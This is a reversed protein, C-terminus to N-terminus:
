ESPLKLLSPDPEDFDPSPHPYRSWQVLDRTRVGLKAKQLPMFQDRRFRQESYSESIRGESRLHQATVDPTLLCKLDVDVTGEPLPFPRTDRTESLPLALGMDVLEEAYDADVEVVDGTAVHGGVHDLHKKNSFSARAQVTTMDDQGSGFLEEGNQLTEWRERWRKGRPTDARIATLRAFFELHENLKLEEDWPVAELLSRRAMFFNPLLDVEHYLLTGVSTDARRPRGEPPRVKIEAGNPILRGTFWVDRNLKGGLSWEAGVMGCGEVEQLLEYFVRLDTNSTCVYDDDWLMVCPETSAQVLLNRKASLGIDYATAPVDTAGDYTAPARSDDCVYIRAEPYFHKISDVLRQAVAPREHTPIIHAIERTV